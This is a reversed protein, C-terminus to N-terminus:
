VIRPYFKVNNEGSQQLLSSIKDMVKNKELTELLILDIKEILEKDLTGLPIGLFDSIAEKAVIRSPFRIEEFPDPDVFPTLRINSPLIDVKDSPLIADNPLSLDQAMRSVREFRKQSDTKKHAKYKHLPIPGSIPQYPGYRKDGFEVYIEHDLLGWWITVTEGSLEPDIQYKTAGISIQCDIGATRSESERSFACFRDWSCMKTIGEEPQSKIWDEYRSRNEHRHPNQNYQQIFKLLWLNAETQTEPMYFHYLSEHLEKVTRFPREVKGKSRATPRNGSKGM